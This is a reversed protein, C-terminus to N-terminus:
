YTGYRSEMLWLDMYFQNFQKAVWAHRREIATM